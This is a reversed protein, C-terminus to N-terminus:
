HLRIQELLGFFGPFSIGVCEADDIELGEPSVLGAIAFSMAIRHDGFSRISGGRLPTGGHVTMRDEREDVSVGLRRLGEAMAAIRDSEKYRLEKVDYFTTVGDAVAAVAALIPYEDITRAVFEPGVDIGKLRATRVRFDAVAEGAEARQNMVEISAGMRRLIEVIGNRTSNCGVNRIVVDSEPVISAAAMFFAASSIDGPIRIDTGRLRQGGSIKITGCHAILEAGFGRLMVETHDRSQLPEEITTEGNAQLAALLLASKVQASAVPMRYNIGHLNGGAIELPALGNGAKSRITAGMLSLPEIVRQMPRQSLSADGTLESRFPRGALVGSLLRMTTGSNGCDVPAGPAILGNWGKGGISIADGDRVIQVGMQRFARVTRSNDDGGSLNFIRSRGEAVSALIVARHAISKDGPVTIDGRLPSRAPEILMTM